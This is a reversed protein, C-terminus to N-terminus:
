YAARAEPPEDASSTFRKQVITALAVIPWGVLALVFLVLGAQGDESTQWAIFCGVTLAVLCVGAVVSAAKDRILFLFGVFPSLVVAAVVLGLLFNTILYGTPDGSTLQGRADLQLNARLSLLPVALWAAVGFLSVIMRWHLRANRRRMTTTM